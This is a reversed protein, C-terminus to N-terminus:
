LSLISINLTAKTEGDVKYYLDFKGSKGSTVELTVTTSDHKIIRANKNSVEWKGNLDTSIKYTALDYPYLEAAGDITLAISKLRSFTAGPAEIEGEDIEEHNDPMWQNSYDEKLYVVMIGDSSFRDVVEVEYNKGKLKIKKFRQFFENTEPTNSTYIEINSNLKNYIFHDTKQWIINKDERRRLYYWFRIGNIELFEDECQRMLGRFYAIEQYYQNYILWHTGTEKWEIIDGVKVGTPEVGQTTTQGEPKPKNLCIDEWPISIMKDDLEMDIKNQNILCRFERGDAFVATASQYSYLLAKKLSKEKDEIMRDVQRAGGRYGIRKKLNNLSM